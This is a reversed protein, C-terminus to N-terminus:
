SWFRFSEALLYLVEEKVEADIGILSSDVIERIKTSIEEHKACVEDLQTETMM